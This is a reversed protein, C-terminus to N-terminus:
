IHLSWKKVCGESNFWVHSKEERRGRTKLMGPTQKGLCHGKNQSVPQVAAKEKSKISFLYDRWETGKSKIQTLESLAEEQGDDMLM